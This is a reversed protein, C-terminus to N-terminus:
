SIVCLTQGLSHEKGPALAIVDPGTNAAEICLFDQWGDDPVDARKRAGESGPNWVVVSQSGQTDIVISRQWAPQKVAMIGCRSRTNRLMRILQLLPSKPLKLWHINGSVPQVLVSCRRQNNQPDLSSFLKEPTKPRQRL